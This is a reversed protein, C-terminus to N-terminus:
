QYSTYGTTTLTRGRDGKFENPLITEEILAVDIHEDNLVKFLEVNKTTYGAINLQLIKFKTDGKASKDCSGPRRCDKRPAQYGLRGGIQYSLKTQQLMM